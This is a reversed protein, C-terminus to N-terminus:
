KLLNFYDHWPTIKLRKDEGKFEIIECMGKIRSAIRDSLKESLEKISLNSTIIIKNNGNRERKDIILYLMEIVWASAKEAGLDDLILYDLDACKSIIDETTIDSDRNFTNTIKLLLEPVNTFGCTYKFSEESDESPNDLYSLNNKYKKIFRESIIKKAIICAYMTKGTGGNGTFYYGINKYYDINPIIGTYDEEKVDIYRKPFGLNIWRKEIDEENIKKM